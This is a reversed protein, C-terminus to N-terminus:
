IITIFYLVMATTEGSELSERYSHVGYSDIEAKGIKFKIKVFLKL